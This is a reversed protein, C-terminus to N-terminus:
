FTQGVSLHVRFDSDFATPNLVHGVDVRIPGVPTGVRIGGGVSYFFDKQNWGHPEVQVQGADVFAVGGLYRWFSGIEPWIPFRLELTGEALSLGGLPEGGSDRPGLRHNDFGRVSTSGGTYLRKFLPVDSRGDGALPEITAARARLALVTGFLPLYARGEATVQVYDVRSGLVRLSPEVDLDLWTGGKPDSEDKVTERRLGMPLLSLFAPSPGAPDVRSNVKQDTVDGWEFTYGGRVSWHEAFPHEMAVGSVVRQALYAADDEQFAKVRARGRVDLDFLYPQDLQIGGGAVLDSYEGSLELRRAEGYFNRHLWSVRTRFLDETGYGVSVRFSHPEREAVRVEVPWVEEPWPEGPIAEQHEPPPEAQIAVSRFLGVDYVRRESATLSARSYSDGPEIRLERRVIKEQVQELGDVSIWGLRVSPGPHLDWTVRALHAALDVEAGGELHAAPCGFDATRGLVAERVERYRRTGFVTGPLPLLQQLSERERASLPAAEPVRLGWFALQVPKGESVLIRIRVRSRDENWTLEYRAQAEFYGEAAYADAIRQMDRRLFQEQFAPQPRWFRLRDLLGPASTVIADELEDPDLAEVGRWEIKSVRPEEESAEDEPVEAGAARAGSDGGGEEAPAPAAGLLALLLAAGATWQRTREV